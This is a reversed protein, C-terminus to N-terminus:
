AGLSPDHTGIWTRVVRFLEARDGADMRAARPDYALDALAEGGGSTFATTRGTRDLFALWAAGSLSAVRDRRFAALATRKVLAPIERVAAECEGEDPGRAELARLEALAARRYAAKRWACWASWAARAGLVLALAGVVWWGPAPPWWPVPPPAVIDHLRDLSGPSTM